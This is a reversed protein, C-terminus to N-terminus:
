KSRGGFYNELDSQKLSENLDNFADDIIQDNVAKEEPSSFEVDEYNKEQGTRQEISEEKQKKSDKDRSLDEKHVVSNGDETKELDRDKQKIVHGDEERWSNGSSDVGVGTSEDFVFEGDSLEVPFEEAKVTDDEHSKEDESPTEEKHPKEEKKEEKHEEKKEQKKDEKKDKNDIEDKKKSEDEHAEEKETEEVVNVNIGRSLSSAIKGTHIATGILSLWATAQIIIKGVKKWLSPKPDRSVYEYEEDDEEDYDEEVDNDNSDDVVYERTTDQDNEDRVPKKIMDEPSLLAPHATAEIVEEDDEKDEKLDAADDLAVLPDKVAEDKVPKEIKDEAHITMDFPNDLTTKEEKKVIKELDTNDKLPTYLEEDDVKAAKFKKAPTRLMGPYKNSLGIETLFDDYAEGTPETIGRNLAENYEEESLRPHWHEPVTWAVKDEKIINNNLNVPPVVLDPVLTDTQANYIISDLNDNTLTEIKGGHLLKDVINKTDEIRKNNEEIRKKDTEIDNIVENLPDNAWNQQFKILTDYRSKRAEKDILGANLVANNEELMSIISNLNLIDHQRLEWTIRLEERREELQTKIQKYYDALELISNTYNTTKTTFSNSEHYWIGMNTLFATEYASEIRELEKLSANIDIIGATSIDSIKKVEDDFQGKLRELDDM